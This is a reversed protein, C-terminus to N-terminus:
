LPNMTAFRSVDAVAALGLAIEGLAGFALGRAARPDRAVRPAMVYRNFLALATMALYIAVKVLLGIRYPTLTPWPPLGTTLAADVAGTVLVLPVALHGARSYRMMASLADSRSPTAAYLGLCLSFAPLGGLWASTTLLHVAHNARHLAGLAGEQMAAHGTLALTAMALGALLAMTRAGARSAALLALLIAVHAIWVKGFATGFAVDEMAELDLDDGAMGLAVLYFWALASVLALAALPPAWRRLPLALGVSAPALAAAFLAAGFLTM